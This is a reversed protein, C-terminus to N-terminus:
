NVKARTAAVYLINVEEALRNKDAENMKDGGYQAVYKELKEENIFDNLLTVEDYEMGKCRHM